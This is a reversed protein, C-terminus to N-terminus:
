RLQRAAASLLHDNFSKNPKRGFGCLILSFVFKTEILYQFDETCRRPVLVLPVLCYWRVALQGIEPEEVVTLCNPQLGMIFGILLALVPHYLTPDGGRSALESLSSKKFTTVSRLPKAVVSLLHDASLIVLALGACAM